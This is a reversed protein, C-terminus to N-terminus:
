RYTKLILVDTSMRGNLATETTKVNKDFWTEFRKQTTQEKYEKIQEIPKRLTRQVSKDTYNTITTGKVSLGAPSAAVYYGLKRTRVNLVVVVTAGVISAAPVSAVGLQDDSLKFKMKSVLETAPKVKTTKSVKLVKAEAAIQDCATMLAAYFDILKKINKRPQHKYAERLQEDAHGSSLDLLEAHGRVFFTKIYRAQAAKVGKGRLLSILKVSKPDFTDPDLIFNDICADIEDSMQVSQERLRDQASVVPVVVASSEVIPEIDAQGEALVIAIEARLWVSSDKNHNFGLHMAPMGRLLCSAIAGMTSGCRWEKTAKFAAIDAKSYDNRGMWDIVKPRMEKSSSNLNYYSMAQHFFATFKPGSMLETEAWKPSHDKKANERISVSTVRTSTKAVPKVANNTTM